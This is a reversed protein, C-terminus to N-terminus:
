QFFERIKDFFGKEDKGPNPAFNKSNKLKELMAREETSLRQPTWVSVHILQDGRGYGNIDKIGKGKLRLIKGSQTGPEIKIKVKGDITPVEVNAGLVADVFSLYLEYVVNQGDRKLEEGEVEEIAILLDGYAGGRIPYNGKGNMSLQMGETVGAPIRINIVEEELVRGEGVCVECKESIIKGDGNCTPCASSTVMQGLMTNTVRRVAGSGGCTGCTQLSAGNKSGNGSCVKCAIHRKVKIKKEAGESVEQLTLKLKIRLNSGRKNQRGGRSGGGGFFGEFPSGGGFIDSFQSFIDEMNVNGGGFGGGAAEHGFQDYRRRQDEDSLVSYAEAAEKFKEEAESNNPNKDPHYKIALKRYAKKIEEASAGKSLGLVEYYDRKAM